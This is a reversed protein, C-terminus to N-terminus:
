ALAASIQPRRRPEAKAQATRVPSRRPKGLLEQYTKKLASYCPCSIAELGARNLVTLVGRAYRILGQAQLRGAAETVGARRVGLMYALFEHTLRFTDRHARDQTMLLWRAMRADLLHFRGCAATQAFGATLVYLYRNLAQRFPKSQDALQKFRHSTMRLAPGGGQVLGRLGSKSVDLLVTIGFLGENGVMGVELNESTGGPTILSIYSDTPFYVHRIAQGPLCISEGFPLEALDCSAAVLERDARPLSALLYNTSQFPQAQAM